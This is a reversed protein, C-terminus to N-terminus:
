VQLYCFWRCSQCSTHSGVFWHLIHSLHRQNNPLWILKSCSSLKTFGMQLEGEVRSLYASSQFKPRHYFAQPQLPSNSWEPAHMMIFSGSNIEIKLHMEPPRHLTWLIEETEDKSKCECLSPSVELSARKRPSSTYRAQWRLPFLSFLLNPANSWNSINKFRENAEKKFATEPNPWDSPQDSAFRRWASKELWGRNPWPEFPSARQPGYFYLASWFSYLKHLCARLISTRELNRVHLTFM